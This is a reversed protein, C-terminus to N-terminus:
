ESLGSWIQFKDNVAMVKNQLSSSIFGGLRSVVNKNAIDYEQM